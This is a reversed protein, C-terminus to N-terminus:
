FCGRPGIHLSDQQRARSQRDSRALDDVRGPQVEALLLPIGNNSGDPNAALVFLVEDGLLPTIAQIRNLMERLDQGTKSSWWEDLVENEGSRQDVLSLAQRITGTLNPIASYM